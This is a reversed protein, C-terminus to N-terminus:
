GDNSHQEVAISKIDGKNVCGTFGFDSKLNIKWLDGKFREYGDAPAKPDKLIYTRTQGNAIMEVEHEDNTGANAHSATHATVYLYDM